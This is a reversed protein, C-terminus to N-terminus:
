AWLFNRTEEQPLHWKPDYDIKALYLGDPMFTPAAHKRDRSELVEKLWSPPQSGNGVAILSGMINRVMHHLFANAHLTFMLLDGRQEIEIGHMLKIPSKAQCQVSRFSSFDHEGLLCAAAERMLEVDLPRFVWGARGTLLPSRVQNNHLVYQYMRSRASFRAHFDENQEQKVETAWRVAISSPLFTNLGRIWSAMERDLDTDFHVVQELAHVGADTRGACVTSITQRTFKQLASELNDQVTLGNLQTQWGQWPAGDYQVGLVIRKSEGSM